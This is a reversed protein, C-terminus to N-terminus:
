KTSERPWRLDRQNPGPFLLSVHTCIDGYYIVNLHPFLLSVEMPIPYRVIAPDSSLEPSLEGVQFSIDSVAHYAHAFSHIIDNVIRSTGLIVHRQEETYETLTVNDQDYFM